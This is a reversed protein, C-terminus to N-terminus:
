GAAQAKGASVPIGRMELNSFLDGVDQQLQDLLPVADMQEPIAVPDQGAGGVLKRRHQFPLQQALHELVAAVLKSEMRRGQVSM